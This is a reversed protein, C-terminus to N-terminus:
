GRSFSRRTRRTKLNYFPKWRRQHPHIGDKNVKFAFYEVEDQMFSCKSEKLKIGFDDLQQLTSKLNRMHDENDKGTVLIDDLIYGVGGVGKLTQDMSRQFIAPAAAVGFPLRTYRYLGLHTNITVYKRSEKDLLIQQYAHSLDLKSFKQGGSLKSFVEGATSLPYEPVDLVPNLTFRIIEVFAYRIM